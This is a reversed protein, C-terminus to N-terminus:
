GSIKGNSTRTQGRRLKQGWRHYGVRALERRIIKYSDFHSVIGIRAELNVRELRGNQWEEVARALNAMYRDSPLICDKYIRAGLFEVGKGVEVFIRKKPHVVAGLKALMFQEIKAVDRKAKEYDAEPVMFYFDDVYRGYYSYGLDNVIYQDAINLFTNSVLQSTLNGIPLGCSPGLYGLKKEPPVKALVKPSGKVIANERPDNYITEYWLYDCIERLFGGKPFQRRLGESVISYAIDKPISMFYGKLDLKILYAKQTYNETVARMQRYMTEVGCLTGKGERCSFSTDVFQEDWWDACIMYILHHVVRDRFNAAYIERPTPRDVAFRISPLPKYNRAMIVNRLSYINQFLNAEFRQEDRTGLKDKKANEFSLLLLRFLYAENSEGEDREVLKNKM